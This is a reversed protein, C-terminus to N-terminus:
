RRLELSFAQNKMWEYLGHLNESERLNEAEQKMNRKFTRQKWERIESAHHM